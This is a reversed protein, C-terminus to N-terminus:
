FKELDRKLIYKNNLTFYIFLCFILAKEAVAIVILM